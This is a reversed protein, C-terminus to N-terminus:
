RGPVKHVIVYSDGSLKECHTIFRAPTSWSGGDYDVRITRDTGCAENAAKQVQEFTPKPSDDGCGAALLALVSMLALWKMGAGM